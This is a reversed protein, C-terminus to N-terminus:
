LPRIARKIKVLIRGIPTERIKDKLAQLKLQRIYRPYAPSIACIRKYVGKHKEKGAMRLMLDFFANEWGTAKASALMSDFNKEIMRFTQAAIQSKRTETLSRSHRRYCYLNDPIHVIRGIAHIRLWYDYDEALFLDADYLGVREAISKTYLFCAGCCNWAVLADSEALSVEAIVNDDADINTYDAYVMDASADAELAGVMAELANPKYKNDDSTWTLYKGGAAAFGANLTRPLKLNTENSLVKIRSDRKANAKLIELTNDTSCDDVAILEFNAYTQALVSDIAKQVHEAGNYVPLVVSVLPKESM